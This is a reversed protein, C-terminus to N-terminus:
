WNDKNQLETPVEFDSPRMEGKFLQAIIIADQPRSKVYGSSSGQGYVNVKNTKSNFSFFGSSVVEGSKGFDFSDLTSPFLVAFEVGNKEFIVYKREFIM